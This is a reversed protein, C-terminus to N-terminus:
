IKEQGQIVADDHASSSSVHDDTRVEDLFAQASFEEDRDFAVSSVPDGEVDVPRKLITGRLGGYGTATSDSSAFSVGGAESTGGARSCWLWDM